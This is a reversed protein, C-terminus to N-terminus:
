ACGSSCLCRDCAPQRSRTSPSFTSPGLRRPTGTTKAIEIVLERIEKPKRQGGKPNETKPKGCKEDREWRYFTAPSVLTILEEIAKGM